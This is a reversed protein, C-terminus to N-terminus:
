MKNLLDQYLEELYEKKDRYLQENYVSALTLLRKYYALAIKIEQFLIPMKRKDFKSYYFLRQDLDKIFQKLLEDAKKNDGIQYYSKIMSLMFSNNEYIQYPIKEMCLDLVKKAKQQKGEEILSQALLGISSRYTFALRRNTEDLYVSPKEMNGWHFKSMIKHYMDETSVAALEGEKRKIKAPILKYTLGTCQLYKDLYLFDKPKYGSTITFYIPRKWKNNRLIDIIMMDKKEIANDSKPIELIIESVISDKQYEPVIKNQLLIDKDVQFRIKNVPTFVEKTNETFQIKTKDHDSTVWKIFNDASWIVSDMMGYRDILYIANRKDKVYISHPIASPIGKAEYSDKKVQDIYWDTNLLSLNVCKVDTRYKEVEQMYWLPFTDNDGLTFLIANEDCSDLYAKAIDRATYRDSRDHDDWNEKAMIGPVLILCALVVLGIILKNQPLKSKLIHLLQLVGFGVWIAFVYFSGVLAYDRERPEFPKNNTYMLIGLGLFAFLLFAAYFLKKDKRIHYVLGLIGLILPLFYYTNRAKNNKLDKPLDTQPGLRLEDIFDIGSIWNGKTLEFRGQYDNQRGVFNWMFYRIYMHGLQYHLFFQLNQLFTPKKGKNEKLSPVIEKYNAISNRQWMRPFFGIHQSSINPEAEKGHDVIIYQKTQEDREYTPPIDTYPQNKDLKIGGDYASFMPGYLVPWDGYQERNYYALLAVADKPADENIPTQANARIPLMIWSSFGILMFILCLVITNLQPMQKKRTYQILFTFLAVLLIGIIVTGSNFPLGITNTFFIEAWGFLGMVVPFVGKFIITLLGILAINVIVFQKMNTGINKYKKACYVFGVAPVALLVMIHVGTALGLIYSILIFWKDARESQDADWKLALWFILAILTTAMAYVEGEVASFWFTDTFTFCLAGVIGAGMISLITNANLESTKVYIKKALATISWFLFLVTFASSIASMSNVM